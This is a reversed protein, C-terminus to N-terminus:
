LIKRERECVCWLIRWLQLHLSLPMFSLRLSLCHNLTHIVMIPTDSLSICHIPKYYKYIHLATNSLSPCHLYPVIITNLFFFPSQPLLQGTHVAYNLLFKTQPRRDKFRCCSGYYAAEFLVYNATHTPPCAGVTHAAQRKWFQVRESSSWMVVM